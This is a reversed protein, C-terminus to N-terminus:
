FRWDLQKVLIKDINNDINSIEFAFCFGETNNLLPALSGSWDFYFTTLNPDWLEPSIFTKEYRRKM